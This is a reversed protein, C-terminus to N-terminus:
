KMIHIVVIVVVFFLVLGNNRLKQESGCINVFFIKKDVSELMVDLQSM